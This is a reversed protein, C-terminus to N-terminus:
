KTTMTKAFEVFFYASIPISTVWLILPWKPWGNRKVGDMYVRFASKQQFPFLSKWGVARYGAYVPGIGGIAVSIIAFLMPRPINNM